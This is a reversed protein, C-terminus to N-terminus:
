CKWRQWMSGSATRSSPCGAARCGVISHDQRGRPNGAGFGPCRAGSVNEPVEVKAPPPVVRDLRDAPRGGRAAKPASASPATLGSESLPKFKDQNDIFLPAIDVPLLSTALILRLPLRKGIPDDLTGVAEFNVECDLIEGSEELSRFVELANLGRREIDHILDYEVSYLSLGSERL